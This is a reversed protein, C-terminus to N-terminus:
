MIRVQQDDLMRKLNAVEEALRSNEMVLETVLEPNQHASDQLQHQSQPSLANVRPLLSASEEYQSAAYNNYANHDEEALHDAFSPLEPYLTRSDSTVVQAFYFLLKHIFLLATKPRISVFVLVETAYLASLNGSKKGAESGVPPNKVNVHETPSLKSEPRQLVEPPKPVVAPSVYVPAIPATPVDPFSLGEFLNDETEEVGSPKTTPREAIM